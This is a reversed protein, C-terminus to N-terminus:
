MSSFPVSRRQEMAVILWFMLGIVAMLRDPHIFRGQEDVVGIRDGDGDM